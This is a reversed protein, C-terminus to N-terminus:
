LTFQLVKSKEAPQSGANDNDSVSKVRKAARDDSTDGDDQARKNSMKYAM